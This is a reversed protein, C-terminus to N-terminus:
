LHCERGSDNYNKWLTRASNANAGSESDSAKINNCGHDTNGKRGGGPASQNDAVQLRQLIPPGQHILGGNGGNGAGQLIPQSEEKKRKKEKKKRGLRM